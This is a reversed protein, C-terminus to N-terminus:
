EINKAIECEWNSHIRLVIKDEKFPDGYSYYTIEGLYRGLAFSHLLLMNIAERLDTIGIDKYAKALKFGIIRGQHFFFTLGGAGFVERLKVILSVMNDESFLIFRKGLDDVIPFHYPAILLQSLQPKVIKVEKIDSLKELEQKVKEPKIELGTFDTSVFIATTKGIDIRSSFVIAIINVNFREYVSSIKALAGPKNVARIHFGILKRDKTFYLNSILLPTLSAKSMISFCGISVIKGHSLLMDIRIHITVPM